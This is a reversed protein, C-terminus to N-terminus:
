VNRVQYGAVPVTPFVRPESWQINVVDRKQDKLWLIPADPSGPVEVFLTETISSELNDYVTELNIEYICRPKTVPIYCSRNTSDFSKRKSILEEVSYWNVNFQTVRSPDNLSWDIRIRGFSSPENTDIADEYQASICNIQHPSEASFTKLKLPLSHSEDIESIDIETKFLSNQSEITQSLCTLAIIVINYM